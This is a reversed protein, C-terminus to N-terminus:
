SLTIAFLKFDLLINRGLGYFEKCIKFISLLWNFHGFTTFSHSHFVLGAIIDKKVLITDNFKQFIKITSFQSFKLYKPLLIEQHTDIHLM